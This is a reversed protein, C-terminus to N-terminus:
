SGVAALIEKAHEEPKVKPWIRKIKRDPGIWFTVRNTGMYRRGMFVKEGWVGYANVIKKEDDALLPFPLKYKSM